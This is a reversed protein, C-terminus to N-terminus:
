SSVPARAPRPGPSRPGLGQSGGSVFVVKNELLSEM